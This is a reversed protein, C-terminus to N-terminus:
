RKHRQDELTRIIEMNPSWIRFHVKLTRNNPITVKDSAELKISCEEGDDNPNPFTYERWYFKDVPVVGGSPYTPTDMLTIMSTVKGNDDKFKSDSTLKVSVGCPFSSDTNKFANINDWTWYRFVLPIKSDHHFATKNAAVTDGGNWYNPPKIESITLNTEPVAFLWPRFFGKEVNDQTPFYGTEQDATLLYNFLWQSDSYQTDQDTYSKMGINSDTAIVVSATRAQTFAEWYKPSQGEGAFLNGYLTAKHIKTNLIELAINPKGEDVLSSLFMFEGWNGAPSTYTLRGGKVPLTSTPANLNGTPQTWSSVFNDPLDVGSFTLSAIALVNDASPTQNGSGDTVTPFMKIAKASWPYFHIGDSFVPTGDTPLTAPATFNGRAADGFPLIYNDSTQAFNYGMPENLDSLPVEFEISSHGEWTEDAASYLDKLSSVPAGNRDLIKPVAKSPDVSINKWVFRQAPVVTVGLLSPFPSNENSSGKLGVYVPVCVNYTFTAGILPTEGPPWFGEDSPILYRAFESNKNNGSKREGAEFIELTELSKTGMIDSNYKLKNSDNTSLLPNNDLVKFKIKDATSSQALTKGTAGKIEGTTAVWSFSAPPQTDVVTVYVITNRGPSSYGIAPYSGRVFIGGVDYDNEDLSWEYYDDLNTTASSIQTLEPKLKRTGEIWVWVWDSYSELNTQCDVKWYDPATPTNFNVSVFTSAKNIQTSSAPPTIFFNTNYVGSSYWTPNGQCAIYCSALIIKEKEAIPGKSYNPNSGIDKFARTVPAAGIDKKTGIALPTLIKEKLWAELASKHSPKSATFSTTEPVYSLVDGGFDPTAPTSLIKDFVAEVNLGPIKANIQPIIFAKNQQWSYGLMNRATKEDYELSWNANVAPGTGSEDVVVMCSPSQEANLPFIRFTPEGPPGSGPDYDGRGNGTITWTPKPADAFTTAYQNKAEGEEWFIPRPPDIPIASQILGEFVVKTGCPVVLFKMDNEDWAKFFKGGAFPTNELDAPLTTKESSGIPGSGNPYSIVGTIPDQPGKGDCAFLHSSAVLLFAILLHFFYKM